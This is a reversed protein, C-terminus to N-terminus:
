YTLNAIMKAYDGLSDKLYRVEDNTLKKEGRGVHNSFIPKNINEHNENALLSLQEVSTASVSEFELPIKIFSELQNQM